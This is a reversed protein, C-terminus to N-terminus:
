YYKLYINGLNKVLSDIALVKFAILLPSSIVSTLALSNKWDMQYSTQKLNLKGLEQM